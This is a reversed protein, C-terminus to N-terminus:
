GMKGAAIRWLNFYNLTFHALTAALIDGTWECLGGLAFGSLLATLTWPWFTRGPGMHVLGFVLSTIVFGWSPQMAGRFLAEEGVSSSIALLTVDTLTLPGLLRRFEGGLRQSWTFRGMWASLAVFFLGLGVGALARLWLEPRGGAAEREYVFINWDGRLVGWLLAVGLLAAYFWLARRVSFRPADDTM